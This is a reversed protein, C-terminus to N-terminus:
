VWEAPFNVDKSWPRIKIVERDYARAAEEPTQYTGLYILKKGVKVRARWGNGHATVGHYGSVGLGSRGRAIRDGVNEADTGLELHDPNSCEPNDCKHRVVMGAPIPGHHIVYSIRHIRVMRGLSSIWLM